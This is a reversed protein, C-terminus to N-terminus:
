QGNFFRVAKGTLIGAPKGKHLQECQLVYVVASEVPLLSFALPLIGKRETIDVVREIVETPYPVLLTEDAAIRLVRVLYASNKRFEYELRAKGNGAYLQFSGQASTPYEVRVEMGEFDAYGYRKGAKKQKRFVSVLRSWFKGDKFNPAFGNVSDFILKAMLNARAQETSSEKMGDALTIETYTGRKARVHYGYATSDVHTVEGITGGIRIISRAKAM